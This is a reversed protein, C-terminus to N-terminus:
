RSISGRAPEGGPLRARRRRRRTNLPAGYHFIKTGLPLFQQLRENFIAILAAAKSTVVTTYPSLTEATISATRTFRALM